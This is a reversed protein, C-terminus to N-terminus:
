VSVKKFVDVLSIFAEIEMHVIVTSEDSYTKQFEIQFWSYLHFYGNSKPAM